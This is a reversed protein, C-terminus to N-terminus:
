QDKTYYQTEKVEVTEYWGDRDWRFEDKIDDIEGDKYAWSPLWPNFVEKKNDTTGLLEFVDM